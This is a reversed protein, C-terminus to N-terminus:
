PALARSTAARSRTFMASGPFLRPRSMGSGTLRRRDRRRGHRRRRVSPALRGGLWTRRTRLRKATTYDCERHAAPSRGHAAAPVPSQRVHRRCNDSIPRLARRRRQYSQLRIEITMMKTNTIAPNKPAKELHDIGLLPEGAHLLLSICAPELAEVQVGIGGRDLHWGRHCICAVVRSTRADVCGTSCSAHTRRPYTRRDPRM